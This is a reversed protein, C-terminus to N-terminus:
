VSRFRFTCDGLRLTDGDSLRAVDIARGNLFTPNKEVAKPDAEVRFGGERVDIRAHSRSIRRSALRVDCGERGLTNEGAFLKFVEGTLPGHIGVLLAVLEGGHSRPYETDAGLEADAPAALPRPVARVSAPPAPPSAGARPRETPAVPSGARQAAEIPSLAVRVTAEEPTRQPPRPRRRPGGESRSVLGLRQLVDRLALTGVGQPRPYGAPPRIM